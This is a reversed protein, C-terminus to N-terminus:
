DCPTSGKGGQLVQEAQTLLCNFEPNSSDTGSLVRKVVGQPNLMTRLPWLYTSGDSGGLAINWAINGPDPNFQAVTVDAGPLAATGLLAGTDRSWLRAYGDDSTTLLYSGRGPSFEITRTEGHQGRLLVYPPCPDDKVFPAAGFHRCQQVNLVRVTPDNRGAFALWRDDKSFAITTVVGQSPYPWRNLKVGKESWLSITGNEAGAAAAYSEDTRNALAGAGIELDFDEKGKKTLDYLMAHGIQEAGSPQLSLLLARKGNRSFQVTRPSTWWTGQEKEIPNGGTAPWMVWRNFRFTPITCDKDEQNCHAGKKTLAYYKPQPEASTQVAFISSGGDAFSADAFRRAYATPSISTVLAARAGHLSWIKVRDGGGTLMRKGDDSFHVSIVWQASAGPASHQLVAEKELKDGVSWLVATGDESGTLLHTGTRDFALSDVSGAQAFAARSLWPQAHWVLVSGDDVGTALLSGDPSFAATRMPGTINRPARFTAARIPQGDNLTWLIATGDAYTTAFM